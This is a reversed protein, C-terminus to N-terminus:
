KLKPNMEFWFNTAARAQLELMEQGDQYSKVRSPITNQHPLFAYNYDWFIDDQSIEGRFVFDRSCANIVINQAHPNRRSLLDLSSIEGHTKRALQEFSIKLKQAVLMTMNAMVGSGLLILHLSPYKIKYNQLIEEVAIVDTNTAFFGQDTFAITNIAGIEKVLPSEIIVDKMFHTKYPTTINLGVIKQSFESLSPVDSAKPFAFLEYSTLKDGLIMQYLKPSLSHAIPYGLLGLKM